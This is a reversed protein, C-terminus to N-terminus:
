FSVEVTFKGITEREGSDEYEVTDVDLIMKHNGAVHYVLGGILRTSTQDSSDRNFDFYDYRGILGWRTHPFRYEAFM